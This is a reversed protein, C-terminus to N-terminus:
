IDKKVIGAHLSCAEEFGDDLLLCYVDSMFLAGNAHHTFEKVKYPALSEFEVVDMPVPLADFESIAIRFSSVGYMGDDSQAKFKYPM